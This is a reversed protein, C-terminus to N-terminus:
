GWRRKEFVRVTLFIFVVCVSIFFLIHDYRFIGLSFSTYRNLLSISAILKDLVPNVFIARLSDILLFFLAAGYGGVAAIVQNETLSSIFTGISVLAMGLLLNATFCGWFVPWYPAAFRSIVLAYVLIISEATFLVFVAAFFKGMVMATLSLPATLLAQDTKNRREESMLRMTLMPILFLQVTFQSTFVPSLDTTRYYLCNTFFFVGSFLYYVALFVYGIPSQFYAEIERNMVTIM